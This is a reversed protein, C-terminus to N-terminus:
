QRIQAPSVAVRHLAREGACGYRMARAYSGKSLALMVHLAPGIVNAVDLNAPGVAPGVLHTQM